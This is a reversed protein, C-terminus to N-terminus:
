SAAKQSPVNLPLFDVEEFFPREPTKGAHETFLVISWECAPCKISHIAVQLPHRATWGSPDRKISKEEDVKELEVVCKCRRCQAQRGAFGPTIIKM